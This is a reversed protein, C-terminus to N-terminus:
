HRAVCPDVTDLGSACWDIHWLCRPLCCVAVAFFLVIISQCCISTVQSAATPGTSHMFVAGGVCVGVCMRAVQPCHIPNVCVHSPWASWRTCWLGAALWGPSAADGKTVSVGLLEAGILRLSWSLSQQTFGLWGSCSSILHSIVVNGGELRQMAVLQM